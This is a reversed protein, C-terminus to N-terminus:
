ESHTLSNLGKEDKLAGVVRADDFGLAVVDDGRHFLIVDRDLVDDEVVFAVAEAFLFVLEGAVLGGELEEVFM